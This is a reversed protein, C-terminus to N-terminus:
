MSLNSERHPFHPDDPTSWGSYLVKGSISTKPDLLPNMVTKKSISKLVINDNNPESSASSGPVNMSAPTEQLISM